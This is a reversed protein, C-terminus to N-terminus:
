ADTKDRLYNHAMLPRAVVCYNMFISKKHSATAGNLHCFNFRPVSISYKPAGWM